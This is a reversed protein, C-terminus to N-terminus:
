YLRMEQYLNHKSKSTSTQEIKNEFYCFMLYELRYM